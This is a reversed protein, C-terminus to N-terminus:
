ELMKKTDIEEAATFGTNKEALYYIRRVTPELKYRLNEARTEIFKARM